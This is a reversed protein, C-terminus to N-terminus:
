ERLKELGTTRKQMTIQENLLVHMQREPRDLITATLLVKTTKM